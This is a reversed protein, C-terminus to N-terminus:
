DLVRLLVGCQINRITVADKEEEKEEEKEEKEKENNEGLRRGHGASECWWNVVVVVAVVVFAESM